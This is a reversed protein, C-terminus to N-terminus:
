PYSQVWQKKTRVAFIRRTQDSDESPRVHWYTSKTMGRSLKTQHLKTAEKISLAKWRERWMHPTKSVNNSYRKLFFILELLSNNLLLDCNPPWNCLLCYWSRWFHSIRRSVVSRCVMILQEVTWASSSTQKSELVCVFRYFVTTDNLSKWSKAVASFFESFLKSQLVSTQM